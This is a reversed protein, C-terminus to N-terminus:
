SEILVDIIIIATLFVFCIVMFPWIFKIWYNYPIGIMQLVILIIGTPTMLGSLHQGYMFTNVIVKRDCGVGDGLPALIPMSLTALGSASSIFIGLITFIILMVIAFIIKHLGSVANSLSNLITDAIKGEELTINIGASIGIIITVGVFDGAGRIFIELGKNEGKKLLIIFIVGFGLFLAAMHKFWWDYVMIGFIMIGFAITFLLLSIKQKCSFVHNEDEDDKNDNSNENQQINEKEKNQDNEKGEKLLINENNTEIKRENEEKKNEKGKEKEKKEFKLCTELIQNKIDYVISKTEDERIKKFYYFLYIISIIMGLIFAISRFVIGDTFPIGSSYSGLVVTFANTTSFMNGMMAGLYLPSAGLIGDIGNKLFVPMLLPYFALIEELLGFISGCIGMIIFVLIILLFEKGKTIKALSSLGASLANMEILVNLVGGLILLFIQIDASEIIGLIPYLFLFLFNTPKEDIREYTDPISIPKKIYGRKFSDLPIKIKYEDLVSQGAKKEFTTGNQTKIIFIDKDSNYEIKYFQGKPIIYTLLFVFAEILLLITYATPFKCGNKKKSEKKEELNSALSTKASNVVLIPTSLNSEDKLNNNNDQEIKEEM